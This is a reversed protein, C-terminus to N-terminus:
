ASSLKHPKQYLGRTSHLLKGSQMPVSVVESNECGCGTLPRLSTVTLRREMMKSTKPM